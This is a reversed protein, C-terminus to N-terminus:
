ADATCHRNHRCYGTAGEAFAHAIQSAIRDLAFEKVHSASSDVTAKTQEITGITNTITNGPDTVVDGVGLVASSQFPYSMTFILFLTFISYSFKNKISFKKM